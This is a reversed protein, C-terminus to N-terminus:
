EYPVKRSLERLKSFAGFIGLICCLSILTVSTGIMNVTDLLGSYSFINASPMNNTTHMCMLLQSDPLITFDSEELIADAVSVTTKNYRHHTVNYKGAYLTVAPCQPLRIKKGCMFVTEEKIVSTEGESLTYSMMHLVLQPIIYQGGYVFVELSEPGDIRAFDNANGTFWIGDCGDSRPIRACMYNFDVNDVGCSKFATSTGRFLYDFTKAISCLTDNSKLMVYGSYAGLYQYKNWSRVNYDSDLLNLFCKMAEDHLDSRKPDSIKILIWTEENECCLGDTGNAIVKHQIICKSGNRSSSYSQCSVSRCMRSYPDFMHNEKLCFGKNEKEERERNNGVFTWIHQLYTPHGYLGEAPSCPPLDDLTDYGNCVACHFNKFKERTYGLSPCVNASYAVCATSLYSNVHSPPCQSILSPYCFRLRRGVEGLGKERKCENSMPTNTAHKRNYLPQFSVNWPRISRFDYGNCIACYINQFNNGYQEFVPWGEMIDFSAVNNSSNECRMRLNSENWDQPCTSVLLVSMLEVYPTDKMIVCTFMTPNLTGLEIQDSSCTDNYDVCCNNFLNCEPDCRCGVPATEYGCRGLCSHAPTVPFHLGNHEVEISLIFVLVFSFFIGVIILHETCYSTNVFNLTLSM